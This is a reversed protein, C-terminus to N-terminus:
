IYSPLSKLSLYEHGEPPNFDLVSGEPIIVLSLLRSKSQIILSREDLAEIIAGVGQGMDQAFQSELSAIRTIENCATLIKSYYPDLYTWEANGLGRTDWILMCGGEDLYATLTGRLEGDMWLGVVDMCNRLYEVDKNKLCPAEFHYAIKKLQKLNLGYINQYHALPLLEDIGYKAPNQHYNSYRDIRMKVLAYPPPFHCIKPVLLAIRDYASQDEGPFGHLINWNAKIGLSTCHKLTELVSILTVGKKMHKLISDDLSEIGPQVEKFGAEGLAKIKELGLDGRIEGFYVPGKGKKYRPMNPFLGQFFDLNMNSCLDFFYQSREGYREVLVKMEKLLHEPSKSYAATSKGNLGCFSCKHKAAWWCGRGSEFPIQITLKDFATSLAKFYDDYDLPPLQDLDTVPTFLQNPIQLKKSKQDRAIIGDSAPPRVGNLVQQAFKPFTVDANSTFAYDIFPFAEMRGTAMEAEYHAGGFVIITEPSEQKIRKALALSAIDQTFTSSFGVIKYRSWDNSRVLEDIFIEALQQLQIIKVKIEELQEFWQDNLHPTVADWYDAIQQSTRPGLLCPTFIWETVLSIYDGKTVGQSLEVGIKEAFKLNYYSLECPIGQELLASKLLSLSALPTGAAFFPMLILKVQPLSNKIM